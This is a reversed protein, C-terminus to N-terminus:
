FFKNLRHQWYVERKRYEACHDIFMFHWDGKGGHHDQIYYKHFLKQTERQKTEFSNHATKYNNLRMRFKKSSQFNEMGFPFKGNRFIFSRRSNCNLAGKNIESTEETTIPSFSDM